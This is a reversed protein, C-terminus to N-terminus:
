TWHQLWSTDFQMEFDLESEHYALCYPVKVCSVCLFGNFGNVTRVRRDDLDLLLIGGLDWLLNTTIYSVNM